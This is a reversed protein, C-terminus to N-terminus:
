RKKKKLTMRRFSPKLVNLTLLVVVRAVNEVVAKKNKTTSSDTQVIEASTHGNPTIVAVKTRNSGCGGADVM